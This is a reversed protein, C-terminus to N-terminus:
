FKRLLLSRKQKAGPQNFFWPPSTYHINTPRSVFIDFTKSPKLFNRFLIRETVADKAILTDEETVILTDARGEQCAKFESAIESPFPTEFITGKRWVKLAGKLNCNLKVKM